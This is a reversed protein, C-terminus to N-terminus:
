ARVTERLSPGPVNKNSPKFVPTLYEVGIQVSTLVQLVGVTRQLGLQSAPLLFLFLRLTFVSHRHRLIQAAVLNTMEYFPEARAMTSVPDCFVCWASKESRTASARAEWAFIRMLVVEDVDICAWWADSDGLEEPSGSESTTIMWSQITESAQMSDHKPAAQKYM